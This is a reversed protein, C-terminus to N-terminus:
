GAIGVAANLDSGSVRRRRARAESWPVGSSEKTTGWSSVDSLRDSKGFHEISRQDGVRDPRRLFNGSVPALLESVGKWATVSNYVKLRTPM